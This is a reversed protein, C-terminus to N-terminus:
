QMVFKTFYVAEVGAKGAEAMLVANVTDLAKSQIGLRDSEITVSEKTISSFLLILDNRIRPLFQEVLPIVGEERTMLEIQIQLFRVSRGDPVNVVFPEEIPYYIPDALAVRGNEDMEGGATDSDHSQGVFWVGGVAGVLLISQVLILIIFQKTSM